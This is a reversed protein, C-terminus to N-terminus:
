ISLAHLSFNPRLSESESESVEYVNNSNVSNPFYCSNRDVGTDIIAVTEGEGMVNYKSSVTSNWLSDTSMQDNFCRTDSTPNGFCSSSNYADYHTGALNGLGTLPKWKSERGVGCVEPQVLLLAAATVACEPPYDDAFAKFSVLSLDGHGQDVLSVGSDEAGSSCASSSGSSAFASAWLDSDISGFRATLFDFPESNNDFLQM